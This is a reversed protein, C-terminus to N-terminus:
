PTEKPADTKNQNNLRYEANEGLEILGAILDFQYSVQWLLQPVRSDFGVENDNGILAALGDLIEAMNEAELQARGKAQSLLELEEESLLPAANEYPLFLANSTKYPGLSTKETNDVASM